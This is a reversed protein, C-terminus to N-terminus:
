AIHIKAGARRLATKINKPPDSDTVLDTIKDLRCVREFSGRGFKSHDMVLVTRQARQLMARKVAAAGPVADWAGEPTLSSAGVLAMDANYRAIFEVTDEGLVSAERPDYVGPGVIVRFSPNGGTVTAISLSNTILVLDRAHHALASAVQHTTSGGDIMLVAREPVLAAAARGIRAREEVMRIGRESISPEVATPSITAGGYTRQLLGAKNLELLDRRITEGAVGLRQALSSIRIAASTRVEGLILEHRQQKTYRQRNM